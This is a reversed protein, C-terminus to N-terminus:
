ELLSLFVDLGVEKLNTQFKIDVGFNPVSDLEKGVFIM